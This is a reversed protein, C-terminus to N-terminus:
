KFKHAAVGNANKEVATPEFWFSYFSTLECHSQSSVHMAALVWLPLALDKKGALLVNSRADVQLIRLMSHHM